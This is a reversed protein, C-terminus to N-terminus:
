VRKLRHALFPRQFFRELVQRGLGVIFVRHHVARNHSNMLM